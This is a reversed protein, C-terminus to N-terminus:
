ESGGLDFPESDDYELDTSEADPAAPPQPRSSISGSTYEVPKTINFPSVYIPAHAKADELEALLALGLDLYNRLDYFRGQISESQTRGNQVYRAISKWHKYAYVFWAILPSVGLETAIVKFNHLRDKGDTYDAGKSVLLKTCEAEVKARIENFEQNTM